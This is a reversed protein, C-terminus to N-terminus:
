AVKKAMSGLDSGLVEHFKLLYYIVNFFLYLLLLMMLFEDLCRGAMVPIEDLMDCVNCRCTYVVLKSM